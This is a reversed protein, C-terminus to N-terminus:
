LSVFHLILQVANILLNTARLTINNYGFLYIYRSRKQNSQNEKIYLERQIQIYTREVRNLEILKYYFTSYLENISKILQNSHFM